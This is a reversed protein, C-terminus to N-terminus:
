SIFKIIIAAISTGIVVCALTISLMALPPKM